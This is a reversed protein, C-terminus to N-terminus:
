LDEILTHHGSEDVLYVPATASNDKLIKIAHTASALQHYNDGIIEHNNGKAHFRFQGDKDVFIEFYM